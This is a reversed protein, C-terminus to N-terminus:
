APDFKCCLKSNIVFWDIESDWPEPLSSFVPYGPVSIM